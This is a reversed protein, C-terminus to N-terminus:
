SEIFELGNPLILFGPLFIQHTGGGGSLGVGEYKRERVETRLGM